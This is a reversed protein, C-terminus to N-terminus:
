PDTDRWAPFVAKAVEIAHKAQEATARGCRGVIQKSHSPNVSDFTAATHMTQGNVIPYYTQGLQPAVQALAADMARRADARSFDTLPEVRLPSPERGDRTQEREEMVHTRSDM